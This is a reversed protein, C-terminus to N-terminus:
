EDVPLVGDLMKAQIAQYFQANLKQAHEIREQYSGKGMFDKLPIRVSNKVKLM